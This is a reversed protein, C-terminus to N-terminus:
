EKKNKSNKNESEETKTEIKTKENDDQNDETNEIKVEDSNNDEIEETKTEVKPNENDEQNEETNETKVEDSNNDESEEINGAQLKEYEEISIKKILVEGIQNKTSALEKIRNKDVELGERPYVDGKKYIHNNDQLDKWRKERISIYVEKKDSM